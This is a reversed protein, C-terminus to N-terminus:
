VKCRNHIIHIVQRLLLGQRDKDDLEHMVDESVTGLQNGDASSEDHHLLENMKVM